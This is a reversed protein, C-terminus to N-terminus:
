VGQSLLWQAELENPIGLQMKCGRRRRIGAAAGFGGRFTALHRSFSENSEYGQRPALGPLDVGRAFRRQRLVRPYLPAIGGKLLLLLPRAMASGASAPAGM